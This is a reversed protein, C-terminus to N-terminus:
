GINKLGDLVRRLLEPPSPEYASSDPPAADAASVKASMVPRIPVPDAGRDRQPLIDALDPASGVIEPCGPGRRQAATAAGAVPLPGGIALPAAGTTTEGLWRVPEAKGTEPPRATPPAAALACFGAELLLGVQEIVECLALGCRWAIDQASMAGTFACAIAWQDRRLIGSPAGLDCLEVAATRAVRHRAMRTAWGRAQVRVDAAHLRTYTGAWHADPVALRLDSVFSGAEMPMTLVTVADVIVSRLISCLEARSLYRRLLLYGGADQDPEDASALLDRSEDPVQLGSLLRTGLGPTWSARAFTIEGRSFYVAGAPDGDIKLIGSVGQSALTEM